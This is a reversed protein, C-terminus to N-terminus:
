EALLKNIKENRIESITKFCQKNLWWGHGNDNIITYSMDDEEIVDYTKGITIYENFGRNDICKVKM